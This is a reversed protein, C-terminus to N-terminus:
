EIFFAKVCLSILKHRNGTHPLVIAMVAVLIGIEPIRKGHIGGIHGLIIGAAGIDMGKGILLLFFCGPRKQFKFPHIGAKIHPKVSFIHAVALNGVCETLKIHGVLDPFPLIKEPHQDQFPAVSAVQFILVFEAHAANEPIHVQHFPGLLANVVVKDIGPYFAALGKHADPCFVQIFHDRHLSRNIILVPLRHSVKHIFSIRFENDSIRAQPVAFFRIQIGQHQLRLVLHDRFLHADTLDM